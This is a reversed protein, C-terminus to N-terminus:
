DVEILDHESFKATGNEIDSKIKALHKMNSESYFPDVSMDFPIGREREMRKAFITFATSLTIGLEACIKEVNKKLNEDMRFNVMTTAM